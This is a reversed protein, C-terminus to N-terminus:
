VFGRAVDGPISTLQQERMWRGRTSESLFALHGHFEFHARAYSPDPYRTTRQLVPCFLNLDQSLKLLLTASWSVVSNFTPSILYISTENSFVINSTKKHEKINKDEDNDIVIAEVRWASIGVKMVIMVAVIPYTTITAIPFCKQICTSFTKWWCYCNWDDVLTTEM